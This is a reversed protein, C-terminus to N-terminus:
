WSEYFLDPSWFLSFISSTNHICRYVYFLYAHNSRSQGYSDIGNQLPKFNESSHLIETKGNNLHVMNFFCFSFCLFIHCKILTVHACVVYIDQDNWSLTECTLFFHQSFELRLLGFLGFCFSYPVSFSDMTLDLNCALKIKILVSDYRILQVSDSLNRIKSHLFEFSILGIFLFPSFFM